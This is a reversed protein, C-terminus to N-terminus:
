TLCNLAREMVEYRTKGEHEMLVVVAMDLGFRGRDNYSSFIVELLVVMEGGLNELM